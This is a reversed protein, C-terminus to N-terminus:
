LMGGKMMADYLGAMIFASLGISLLKVYQKADNETKCHCIEGPILNFLNAIIAWLHINGTEHTSATQPISNNVQLCNNRRKSM